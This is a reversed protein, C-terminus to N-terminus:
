KGNPGIYRAIIADNQLMWTSNSIDRLSPVRQNLSADAAPFGTSNDGLYLTTHGAADSLLIDGAQLDSQKPNQIVQYLEPHAKVYATQATVNVKPYNADVGSSIMVTAIYGGCDSFAVSPNYQDHAKQYNDSADSRETKGDAVPKPLALNIATQVINGAVIANSSGCSSSSTTTSGATATTTTPAIDKFFGYIQQAAPIRKTYLKPKDASPPSNAPVEFKNMWAATAEALDTGEAFATGAVAAKYSGNYETKLYGIQFAIDSAPVGAARAAAELATRRGFSWQVLGFGIGNSEQAGANFGSEAYMNGMVAAAQVGNFTGDQTLLTFIQKLTADDKNLSVAGTAVTGTANASCTLSACAPPQFSAGISQPSYLALKAACDTQASSQAQANAISTVSALPISASAFVAISVYVAIKRIRNFRM